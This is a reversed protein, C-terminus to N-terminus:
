GKSAEEFRTFVVPMVKVGQVNKRTAIIADPVYLHIWAAEDTTIQQIDQYILARKDQDVTTIGQKILDNVKPNNYFGMNWNDVPKDPAYTTADVLSMPSSPDGSSPNFAWFFMDYQTDVPKLNPNRLYQSIRVSAEVKWLKLDVGVQKLQQQVVQTVQIDNPYEGEAVLINVSFPQGEKRLIGDPGPTWGAAELLQKAKAPDYEYYKAKKYTLLGPAFLSDLPTAYGFFLAKVIAEKNIAHNLAQRVRVDQFQPRLENMGIYYGRLSPRRVVNLNPNASLRQADQPPVDYIVDYDGAELGAVRAAAELVPKFTIQDLKPKPLGGAYDENRVLTVTQGSVYEKVKFPGASIPHQGIEEEKYQQYIAPNHIGGTGHALSSLMAGHPVKTQISVTYPDPTEVKDLNSKWFSAGPLTLQRKFYADVATADFSAGDHFKVGQRLKFTWKLGDPSVEHSTALDPIIKMDPDFTYLRGFVAYLGDYAVPYDVPNYIDFNKIALNPAYVIAGGSQAAARAQATNTPSVATAAPAAGGSTATAAATAGGAPASTPAAASAAAGAARTPSPPPAESGCAALVPLVALGATWGGAQQLFRRRSLRSGAPQVENQRVRKSM